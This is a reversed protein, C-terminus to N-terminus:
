LWPGKYAPGGRGASEGLPTLKDPESFLIAAKTKRTSLLRTRLTAKDIAPLTM